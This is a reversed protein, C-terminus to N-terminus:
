KIAKSKFYCVNPAWPAALAAAKIPAPLAVSPATGAFQCDGKEEKPQHICCMEAKLAQSKASSGPVEKETLAM